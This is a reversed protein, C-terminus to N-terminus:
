LDRLVPEDNVNETNEEADRARAQAFHKAPDKRRKMVRHFSIMIRLTVPQLELFSSFASKILILFLTASMRM